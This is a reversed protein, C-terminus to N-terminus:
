VKREQISDDDSDAFSSDLSYKVNELVMKVGSSLADGPERLSKCLALFSTKDVRLAGSIYLLLHPDRLISKIGPSGLRGLQRLLHKRALGSAKQEQLLEQQTPFYHEFDIVGAALKVPVPVSLLVPDINKTEDSQILVEGHLSLLASTGTAGKGSNSGESEVCCSTALIGKRYLAWAQESLQFAELTLGQDDLAASASKRKITKRGPATAVETPPKDFVSLLILDSANGFLHHVQLAAKVHGTGWITGDDTGVACGIVTQNLAAALEVVAPLNIYSEGNDESFLECVCAVRLNKVDKKEVATSSATATSSKRSISKAKSTAAPIAATDVHGLLLACRTRQKSSSLRRLVRAALPSVVLIKKGDTKQRAIKVLESRRKAIDAITKKGKTAVTKTRAITKKNSVASATSNSSPSAGGALSGIRTDRAGAGLLPPKSPLPSWSWSSAGGRSLTTCLVLAFVFFCQQM